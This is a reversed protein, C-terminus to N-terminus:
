VRGVRRADRTISNINESFTRLAGEHDCRDSALLTQETGDSLCKEESGVFKCSRLHNLKLELVFLRPVTRTPIYIM